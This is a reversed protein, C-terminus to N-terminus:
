DVQAHNLGPKSLRMFVASVTAECLYLAICGDLHARGLLGRVGCCWVCDGIIAATM